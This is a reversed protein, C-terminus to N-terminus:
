SDLRKDIVEFINGVFRRSIPQNEKPQTCGGNIVLFSLGHNSYSLDSNEPGMGATHTKSHHVVITDWRCFCVRSLPSEHPFTVLRNTGSQLAVQNGINKRSNFCLVFM